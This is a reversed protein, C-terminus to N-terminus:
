KNKESINEGQAESKKHVARHRRGFIFAAAMVALAPVAVGAAILATNNKEVTEIEEVPAPTPTMAAKELEARRAEEQRAKEEEQQKKLEIEAQKQEYREDLEASYEVLKKCLRGCLSKAGNYGLGDTMVTILLPTDSYVIGAIHNVCISSDTYSGYKQAIVIDLDNQRLFEDPNAQTMYDIVSPYQDSNSYLERLIDIMFRCSYKGDDLRDLFRDPLDETAWGSLKQENARVVPWTYARETYLARTNDSYVLCLRMLEEPGDAYNGLTYTGNLVDNAVMMMLPLKVLSATYYWTDGCYYVDEDTKTYCFGVSVEQTHIKGSPDYEDMASEVISNFEDEDLVRIGEEEAAEESNDAFATQFSCLLSLILVASIIKKLASMALRM